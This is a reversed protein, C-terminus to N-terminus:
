RSNPLVPCFVCVPLISSTLTFLVLHFTVMARRAITLYLTSPYYVAVSHNYEFFFDQNQRPTLSVSSSVIIAKGRPGVGRQRRLAKGVFHVEDLYKIRSMGYTRAKEPMALVHHFYREINLPTYKAIHKYEVEECGGIM